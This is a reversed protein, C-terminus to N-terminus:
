TLVVEPHAAMREEIQERGAIADPGEGEVACAAAASAFRAAEGVDGTEHFRVMYAASFIDGAGTPDREEAPFAAIERWRGGTHIRAGRRALTMVVKPVEELWRDLPNEIGAVDEDSVFLVDADRWFPAGSWPRRQVDGAADVERLWGQAGVALLANDHLLGEAVQIEGCVPGLLVLKANRWEPPVDEDTIPEARRNVRQHRGTDDYTNEFTTTTDSDRGALEIDNLLPNDLTEATARTVIGATYGLRHAQLAAFTATGGLRPGHPTLDEVVHGV